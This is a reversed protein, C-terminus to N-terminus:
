DAHIAGGLMALADSVVGQGGDNTLITFTVTLDGVRVIGQTMHKFEGPGPARDTASFYYGPGASGKLEMIPITQEVAQSKVQDLAQQMSQRLSEASRPPVDSTTQWLTTLLVQFGAGSKPTFAITPPLRNPPQRIEDRWSVPVALRLSGHDPLAYRRTGREEAFAATVGHTLLRIVDRGSPVGADLGLVADGGLHLVAGLALGVLAGVGLGLLGRMGRGLRVRTAHIGARGSRKM